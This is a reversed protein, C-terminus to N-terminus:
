FFIKWFKVLSKVWLCLRPEPIRCVRGIYTYPSTSIDYYFSDEYVEGIRNNESDWEIRVYPSLYVEGESGFDKETLEILRGDKLEFNVIVVM